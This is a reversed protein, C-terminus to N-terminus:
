MFLSSQCMCEKDRQFKEFGAILALKLEKKMLDKKINMQFIGHSIGIEILRERSMKAGTDIEELMNDLSDRDQFALNERPIALAVDPQNILDRHDLEQILKARTKKHIDQIGRISAMERFQNSDEMMSYHCQCEEQPQVSTSLGNLVGHADCGKTTKMPVHKKYILKLCNALKTLETTMEKQREKEGWLHDNIIRQLVMVNDHILIGKV